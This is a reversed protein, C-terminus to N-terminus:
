HLTGFVRHEARFFNLMEILHENYLDHVLLAGRTELRADLGIMIKALGIETQLKVTLSKFSSYRLWQVQDKLYLSDCKKKLGQVLLELLPEKLGVVLVKPNEQSYKFTANHEVLETRAITKAETTDKGEALALEVMYQLMSDITWPNEYIEDYGIVKYEFSDLVQKAAEQIEDARNYESSSGTRFMDQLIIDIRMPKARRLAKYAGSESLSKYEEMKVRISQVISGVEPDTAFSKLSDRFEWYATPLGQAHALSPFILCFALFFFVLTKM